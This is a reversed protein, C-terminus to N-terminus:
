GHRRRLLPRLGETSGGEPEALLPEGGSAVTWGAPAGQGLHEYATREDPTLGRGLEARRESLRRVANEVIIVAGDVLLGFDVAGLSMLNGSQGSASMLTIAFLLALPLNVVADNWWSLPSLMFGVVGLIGGTIKRKWAVPARLTRAKGGSALPFTEDPQEGANM